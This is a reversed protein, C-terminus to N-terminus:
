ALWEPVLGYIVRGFTERCTCIYGHKGGSACLLVRRLLTINWRKWHCKARGIACTVATEDRSHGYFLCVNWGEFGTAKNLSM